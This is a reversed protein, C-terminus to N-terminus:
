GVHIPVQKRSPITSPTLLATVPHQLTSGVVRSCVMNCSSQDSCSQITHTDFNSLVKNLSSTLLNGQHKLALCPAVNGSSDIAISYRGADCPALSEGRLWKINDQLYARFYGSPVENSAQLDEFVKIASHTQYQLLLNVKGYREIDWHYAGVVPIFGRERAFQVVELVDDQNVESVICTLYKPHPYDALGDIGQLVTPLQDAGRIHRYRERHLTDLSISLAVGLQSLHSVIKPTLKTGNTILSIGFGMTVLDELIEPLDRRLLPEGGQIFIYRIGEQYLHRFVRQIEERTMEYRGQNLPLDCYGCSSNCRLCIEFIALVPRQQLLNLLPKALSIPSTWPSM